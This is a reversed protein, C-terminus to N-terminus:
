KATSAPSDGANYTSLLYLTRKLADSEREDRTKKSRYESDALAAKKADYIKKVDQQWPGNFKWGYWETWGPNGGVVGYVEVANRNRPPNSEAEEGQPLVFIFFTRGSAHCGPVFVLRGIQEFYKFVECYLDAGKM